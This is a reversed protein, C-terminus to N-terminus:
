FRDVYPRVLIRTNFMGFSQLFPISDKGITSMSSQWGFSEGLLPVQQEAQIVATLMACYAGLILFRGLRHLTGRAKIAVPHDASMGLIRLATYNLATGFM